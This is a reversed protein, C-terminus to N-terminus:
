LDVHKTFVEVTAGGVSRYGRRRAQVERHEPPYFQEAHEDNRRERYREAENIDCWVRSGGNGEGRESTGPRLKPREECTEYAKRSSPSVNLGFTLLGSRSPHLKAALFVREYQIARLIPCM